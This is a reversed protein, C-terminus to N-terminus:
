WRRDVGFYFFPRVDVALQNVADEPLELSVAGLQLRMRDSDQLAINMALNVRSDGDDASQVQEFSPKAQRENLDLDLVTQQNQEAVNAQSILDIQSQNSYARKEDAQATFALGLTVLTVALYPKRICM